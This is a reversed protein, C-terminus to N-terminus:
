LVNLKIFKNNIYFHLLLAKLFKILLKTNQKLYSNELSIM